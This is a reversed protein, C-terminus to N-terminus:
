FHLTLQLDVVKSKARIEVWPCFPVGKQFYKIYCKFLIKICNKFGFKFKLVLRNFPIENSTSSSLIKKKRNCAATTAVTYLITACQRRLKSM